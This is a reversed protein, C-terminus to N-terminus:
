YSATNQLKVLMRKNVECFYINKLFCEHYRKVIRLCFYRLFELLELLFYSVM